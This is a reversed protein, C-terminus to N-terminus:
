PEHRGGALKDVIFEIALGLSCCFVITFGSFAVIYLWGQECPSAVYTALVAATLFILPLALTVVAIAIAEADTPAMEEQAMGMERWPGSSM